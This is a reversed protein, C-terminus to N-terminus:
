TKKKASKATRSRPAVAKLGTQRSDPKTIRDRTGPEHVAPQATVGAREAQRGAYQTPRRNVDEGFLGAVDVHFAKCLQELTDLTVNQEQNEIRMITSQAVGIRRAFRRQPTDGRQTRVFIALRERLHVMYPKYQKYRVVHPENSKGGVPLLAPLNPLRHSM